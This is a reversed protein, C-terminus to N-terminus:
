RGAFLSSVSQASAPRGPRNSNTGGKPIVTVLYTDSCLAGCGSGEMVADVTGDPSTIRTIERRHEPFIVKSFASRLLWLGFVAVAIGSLFSVATWLILRKPPHHGRWFRLVGVCAFVALALLLALAVAWYWGPALSPGESQM